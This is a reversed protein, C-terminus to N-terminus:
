RRKVPKYGLYPLLSKNQFVDFTTGLYNKFKSGFLKQFDAVQKEDLTSGITTFLEGWKSRINRLSGLISTQIEKSVDYKQFLSNVKALQTKDFEGFIAKGQDDLFPKGSLLLKNIEELFGNRSEASQKNFVTKM